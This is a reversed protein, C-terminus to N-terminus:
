IIYGQRHVHNYKRIYSVPPNRDLAVLPRHMLSILPRFVRRIYTKSILLEVPGQSLGYFDCVLTVGLTSFLIIALEGRRMFRLFFWFLGTVMDEPM